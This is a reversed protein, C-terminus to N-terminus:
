RPKKERELALALPLFLPSAPLLLVRPPRHIKREEIARGTNSNAIMNVKMVGSNYRSYFELLFRVSFLQHVQGVDNNYKTELYKRPCSFRKGCEGFGGEDCSAVVWGYLGDM